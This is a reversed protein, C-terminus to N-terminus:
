WLTRITKGVPDKLGMAKVATENPYYNASDTGFSRSFSRGEKMKMGMTEIFDYDVEFVEFTVDSNPDKGQWEMGGGHSYGRGVM